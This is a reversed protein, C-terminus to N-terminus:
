STRQETVKHYTQLFSQDYFVKIFAWSWKFPFSGLKGKKIYYVAHYHLASSLINKTVWQDFGFNKPPDEGFKWREVLITKMACYYKGWSCIKETANKKTNYEFDVCGKNCGGCRKHSNKRTGVGRKGDKFYSWIWFPRGFGGKREL